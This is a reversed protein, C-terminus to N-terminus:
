GPHLGHLWLRVLSSELPERLPDRYTAAHPLQAVHARAAALFTDLVGSSQQMSAKPLRALRRDVGLREALLRLPEKDHDCWVAEARLRAAVACAESTNMARWLTEGPIVREFFDPVLRDATWEKSWTRHQLAAFWETAAKFDTGHGFLPADLPATFPVTGGALLEDGGDGSWVQAPPGKAIEAFASELIVAASIEWMEDVGLREIADRCRLPVEAATVRVVIHPVGLQSAVARAPALDSGETEGSVTLAELPVPVGRRELHRRLAALTVISDIGGSLLVVQRRSRDVAADFRAEFYEAFLDAAVHPDSVDRDVSLLAEILGPTDGVLEQPADLM